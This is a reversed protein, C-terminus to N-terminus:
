PKILVTTGVPVADFLEKIDPNDLAVCGWTWDSASGHGHIFIEGGLATNQPPTRRSRIANVIQNYRARDILGDRLGREADEENPYSLGLSLYYNSKPNKICVYFEGEPTRRDGQRVKDGVPSTGLGARYTRIMEGNSYLELRREGKYVIIRPNILPLNLPTRNPNPQDARDTKSERSAPAAEARTDHHKCAQLCVAAILFMVVISIRTWGILHFM